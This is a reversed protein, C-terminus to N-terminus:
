TLAVRRWAGNMFSFLHYTGTTLAQGAFTVTGSATNAVFVQQGAQGAAVTVTYTTGTLTVLKTSVTISATTNITLNDDTVQAGTAALVRWEGSIVMYLASGNQFLALTNAGATTAPTVTATTSNINVVLKLQGENGNALTTNISTGNLISLSTTISLGTSTTVTETSSFRTVTALELMDSSDARLLNLDSIGSANRARLYQLNALRVKTGDIGDNVISTGSLQTGKGGGTHDHSSIGTLATDVTAVWGEDNLTPWSFNLGGTYSATM